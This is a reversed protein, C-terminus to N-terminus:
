LKFFNLARQRAFKYDVMPEPYNCSARQSLSPCHISCDDLEKLEPVFRRIFDGKEDFKKSQTHPNFIRFWPSADCGTSSSWQWGGNNSAFDGDILNRMFFQEGDRWDLCLLKCYFSAVLMRLRNHMWGTKVLQRMAADIIPFGTNGGQWSHRQKEDVLWPRPLVKKKFDNGRGIHEFNVMLYRYFDRWALERVWAHGICDELTYGKSSYLEFFSHICRRASLLGVSLYPSIVSTGPKSPYDRLLEYQESKQQCFKLLSSFAGAENGLWIDERFIEAEPLSLQSNVPLKAAVPNPKPLIEPLGMILEKQWQKFWPTFVRYPQSQQNLLLSQFVRDDKYSCVSIGYGLLRLKASEDRLRENIPIEQNFHLTEVQKEKCLTVLVEPVDSFTPTILLDLPIGLGALELQLSQLAQQMLGIKRTSENHSRWQDPCAFFVASVGGGLSLARKCANFLAPNDDVRLDSRFWVLQM